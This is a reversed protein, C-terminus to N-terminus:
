DMSVGSAKIPIAWKAIESVVFNQLYEPSRREPAVVTLGIETLRTQVSPTEMMAATADHLKRIIATPTTKPLFFAFWNDSEVDSLGQEHATALAPLTSLRNHALLAIANVTNSEILPLLTTPSGCYYDVRGAVLDQVVQGGGRYPVHTTDIGIVANLLACALHTNAGSGSSGYQMKAQNAKAYAIFEQLNRAPLDKRTVLLLAQEAILGVPAFDTAANYLPRKYLTQNIAFTSSSGLVVQYGDPAAKAVRSVGTMGGAGAVNEVIVPRGLLEAVRAALVRSLVDIVGGAAFPAVITVPRTPWDQASTTNALTILTAAGAALQLFRRRLLKM